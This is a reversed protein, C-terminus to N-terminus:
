NDIKEWQTDVEECNLSINIYNLLRETSVSLGFISIINSGETPQYVM